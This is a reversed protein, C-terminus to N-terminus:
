ARADIDMEFVRRLAERSFRAHVFEAGAAATVAWAQVDSMLLLLADAIQQAEDAVAAVEEIGALGQAGVSTTVMPLAHHLAELVKGKVGAGFRLPIVAAGSRRYYAQLEDDSVHGTVRVGDSALSQVEATPNSGVLALNADPLKSKIRPFIDKVLWKAADVNPPHGFGAVFLLAHPDRGERTVAPYPREFFYLPVTRAAVQPLLSQVAQTETASPYYVVDCNRWLMEEVARIQAAERHLRNEGTKEFELMLRAYHLDHGYYLLKARTYSRV